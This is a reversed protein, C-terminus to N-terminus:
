AAAGLPDLQLFQSKTLLTVGPQNGCPDWPRALNPPLTVERCCWAGGTSMKNPSDFLYGDEGRGHGYSDLYKCIAQNKYWVAQMGAISHGSRGYCVGWGRILASIFEEYSSIAYWEVVTFWQAISEWDSKFYNRGNNSIFPTNQHVCYDGFMALNRPNKEPLQGNGRIGAKLIQLAGWMTSGSGRRTTVRCYSSMPSCKVMWKEGLQKNRMTDRVVEAANHVCNHVGIGEAVYSNDGEVEMNYVDGTFAETEVSRVRRWVHKDERRFFRGNGVDKKRPTKRFMVDWRPLRKKVGHSAKPNSLRIQPNYGLANAIDWMALALDRSVTVGQWNDDYTRDHGDGSMWGFLLSEVFEAPGSLLDAHPKKNGAGGPGCLSEFLRAWQTGQVHVKCTNACERIQIRGEVGWADRLLDVLEQALTDRETISFTWTVQGKNTSGESLFLGFIRGAAADLSILDPVVHKTYEICTKDKALPGTNFKRKGYTERTAYHRKLVTLHASTQLVSSSVPLYRPIAVFDGSKIDGAKVYGHDTLVPHEKTMKLGRHGFLKMNVLEKPEHRIFLHTVRGINREATLVKEGLRIEDIPKNSGDAMRVRTGKPFCSSEPAQNNRAKRFFPLATKEREAQEIRDKWEARPVIWEARFQPADSKEAPDIILGRFGKIKNADIDFDVDVFKPNVQFLDVPM